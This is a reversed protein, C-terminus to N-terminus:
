DQAAAEGDDDGNIITITQRPNAIAEHIGFAEVDTANITLDVAAVYVCQGIGLRHSRAKTGAKTAYNLLVASNNAADVRCNCVELYIPDPLGEVLTLPVGKAVRWTLAACKDPFRGSRLLGGVGGDQGIWGGSPPLQQALSPEVTSIALACFLAAFLTKKIM